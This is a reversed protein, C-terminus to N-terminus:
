RLSSYTLDCLGADWTANVCEVDASWVTPRRVWDYVVAPADASIMDDIRGWAVARAAIGAATEAQAMAANVAPDDLQPWNLNHAPTVAGGNFAPFLVAEPDSFDRVWGVSPCVQVRMRPQGCYRSYMSARSVLLLRTTFGLQTLTGAVQRAIQADPGDRVGAITVRAGVARGSGYGARRMYSRALGMDGSPHGAFDLGRAVLGGAERSGNVGTYLFHNAVDGALPAGRAAALRTRDLAAYVARRTQLRDFPATATNLAVYESGAGASFYIQKAHRRRALAIAAGPPPDADVSHTGTLVESAAGSPDRGLRLAVDNPFAPRVDTGAEWNANRVLRVLDARSGHAAGARSTPQPTYPGTAAVHTRYTSPSHADLRAAYARPVPASLPLVLAQAVYSGAPRDLRFVITRPDPTRIGALAGGRARRAGLLHGFYRRAWPSAVHPNFGREIAYAVDASTVERSLPPAFRVGPRLAVTVTRGSLSVHPPGSALDPVMTTPDSPLYAFLARQTAAAVLRETTTLALAPDLHLTPSSSLLTLTGGRQGDAGHKANAPNSATSPASSACGGLGLALLGALASGALTSGAFRALRRRESAAPVTM